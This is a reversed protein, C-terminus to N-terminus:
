ALVKMAVVLDPRYLVPLGYIGSTITIQPVTGNTRTFANDIIVFRGAQANEGIGNYLNPVSRWAGIAENNPLQGVLFCYKEPIFPRTQGSEDIYGQNGVLIRNIGCGILGPLVEKLREPGLDIALTSQKFLDETSQSLLSMTAIDMVLTVGRAGKYRLVESARRIDSIPTSNAVNDWYQSGYNDRVDPTQEPAFGYDVREIGEISLHGTLMELSTSELLCDIRENCSDIANYLLEDGARKISTGFGRTNLLEKEGLVVAERFYLPRHAITKRVRTKVVPPAADLATAKTMGVTPELIDWMIAAPSNLNSTDDENIGIQPAIFCSKDFAHAKVYSTVLEQSPFMLDFDM